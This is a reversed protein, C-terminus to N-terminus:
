HFDVRFIWQFPQHQLQFELVKAVQHLSSVSQFLGQHQSLNLVCPSPPLLAHSPQIADGIWHVHIQAFEPLHLLVPSGPTSYNMPDCLTICSKAVSCCVGWGCQVIKAHLNKLDWDLCFWFLSNLTKREHNWDGWKVKDVHIWEQTYGETWTSLSLSLSTAWDHRVRQSGMSQLGGPEEMWPIRWALISSHTAMEKELPDEQGLSQVWTERMAPLCKLRQAVLSARLDLLCQM